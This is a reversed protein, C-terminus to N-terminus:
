KLPIANTQFNSFTANQSSSLDTATNGTDQFRFNYM